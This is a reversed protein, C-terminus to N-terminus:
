LWQLELTKRFQDDETLYQAILRLKYVSQIIKTLSWCGLGHFFANRECGILNRVSM